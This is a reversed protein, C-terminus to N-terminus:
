RSQTESALVERRGTSVANGIAAQWVAGCGMAVVVRQSDFCSCFHCSFTLSRMLPLLGLGRAVALEWGWLQLTNQYRAELLDCYNCPSTVM